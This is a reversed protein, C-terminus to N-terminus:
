KRVGVVYTQSYNVGPPPTQNEEIYDKVATVNAKRDLLDWADNAIVYKLFTDGDAISASCKATRYVTGVGQISANDANISQLHQLLVCNLKDLTAKFPKLETKHAEEKQKILDRLQIYQQVRKGIDIHQNTM